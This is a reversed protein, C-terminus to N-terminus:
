YNFESNTYDEIYEVISDFTEMDCINGISIYRTKNKHRYEIVPGDYCNVYIDLIDDLAVNLVLVDDEVFIQLSSFTMFIDGGLESIHYKFVTPKTIVKLDVTVSSLLVSTILCVMSVIATPSWVKSIMCIGIIGGLLTISIVNILFSSFTTVVKYM